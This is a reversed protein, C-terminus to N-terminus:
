QRCTRLLLVFFVARSSDFKIGPLESTSVVIFWILWLDVAKVDANLLFVDNIIKALIFAQAIITASSLFAFLITLIFNLKTVALQSLLKRSINM